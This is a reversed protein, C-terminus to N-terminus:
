QLLVWVPNVFNVFHFLLPAFINLLLILFSGPPKMNNTTRHIM